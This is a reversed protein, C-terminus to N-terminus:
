VARERVLKPVRWWQIPPFPHLDKATTLYAGVLSRHLNDSESVPRDTIDDEGIWGVIYVLGEIGDPERVCHVYVTGAHREAPRVLLDYDMVEKSHRMLRGKVDINTGPLDSGGDGVYPHISAHWRSICYPHLSGFLLKSAAADCMQGTLQDESMRENRRQRDRFQSAGDFEKQRAWWRILDMESSRLRIAVIDKAVVM